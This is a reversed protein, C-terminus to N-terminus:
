QNARRASRAALVLSGGLLVAVAGVTATSWLDRGTRPLDTSSGDSPQTTTTVIASGGVTTTTGESGTTVSTTTEGGPATTSTTPVTTSTTTSTSTTTTTPVVQAFCASASVANTDLTVAANRALLRGEVEAGTNATISALALITGAFDSGTGLTASSTVQWFVNCADADGILAVSSSSATVLTSSAKFVFVADPDGEADLTLTGTIALAGGAYVGPVLTQGGLDAAVTDTTTRGAADNYATVLAAKADVAQADAVHTAGTVNGPPFGTVSSGPSLGLDGDVVSPGTNTVTSGALVGYSEAVGLAIPAEAAAAVTPQVTAVLVLAAALLGGFGASKRSTSTRLM